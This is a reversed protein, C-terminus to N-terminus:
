PSGNLPQIPARDSRYASLWDDIQRAIETQGHARALDLAKQAATIADDRHNLKAQAAALNAWAEAYDPKLRVAEEYHSKAEEARGLGFLAAGFKNHEEADDPKSRLAQDFHPLAEETRGLRVL